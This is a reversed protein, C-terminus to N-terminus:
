HLWYWSDEFLLQVKGSELSEDLALCKGDFQRNM